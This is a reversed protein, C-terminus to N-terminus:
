GGALGEVEAWVRLVNGSCIKEIEAESHGRRLLEAILNPYKSVDELGRPLSDGVGDFDSGLGVHDMGAVEIVHEIHDAVDAVTAYVTPHEKGYAEAFADVKPDHRELDHEKMFARIADWRHDFYENSKGSIFGSGFNIMVVGGKKGIKEILEDPLNREFGPTFRRCSSHSAIVPAKSVELAQEISADSLHSVDVMIGVRNMEAVVKKGFDSLGGNTKKDDYSSDCILNDKSHTLTVYRVGRDHFHKVNALDDEIAAGNEIGMPLAIRGAAFAEKVEKPSRAVAFKDPWKKELQEVSDILEDAVKKAGGEKQFKAPVYISMFPADLGGAKARVYDFDGKETRTSLDIPDKAERLRYPVDIHGDVIVFRKALAAAREEVSAKGEVPTKKEETAASTETKSPEQKCAFLFLPLLFLARRM